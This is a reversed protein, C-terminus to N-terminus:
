CSQDKKLTVEIDELRRWVTTVSISVKTKKNLEERLEELTADPNKSVIEALVDLQQENLRAVAGGGHPKPAISGEERRQKLLKYIFREGVGFIEAVEAITGIEKEVAKVIRERLEIPYTKM